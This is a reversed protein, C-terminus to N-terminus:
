CVCLMLQTPKGAQQTNTTLINGKSTRVQKQKDTRTVETVCTQMGIYPPEPLTEM